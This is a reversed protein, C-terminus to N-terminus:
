QRRGPDRDQEAQWTRGGDTSVQVGSFLSEANDGNGRRPPQARLDFADPPVLTLESRSGRQGDLILKVASILMERDIDLRRDEVRVITNPKWIAGSAGRWGPLTYTLEASRGAAVRVEWDARVQLAAPGAAGEALILKPRYRQVKTDRARAKAGRAGRGPQGEILTFETGGPATAYIADGVSGGESAGAVFVDSHREQWNFVARAALVNKGMVIRGAGSGAAGARTLVLRGLGDGTVLIGRQRAARELCDFATEGPNIAFRPFPAGVDVELLVESIGLPRALRQAAEALTIARFEFPGEPQAACDVLDGVPCRGTVFSVCDDAETETVVEDLHGRMVDEGDLELIFPAGPVVARPVASGGERWRDSLELTMKAAAVDIARGFTMARWGTHKIGNVQLVISAASAFPGSM